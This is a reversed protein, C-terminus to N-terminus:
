LDTQRGPVASMIREKDWIMRWDILTPSPCSSPEALLVATKVPLYRTSSGLELVTHKLWEIFMRVRSQTPWEGGLYHFTKTYSQSPVIRALLPLIASASM